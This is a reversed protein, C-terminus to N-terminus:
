RMRRSAHLAVRESLGVFEEYPLDNKADNTRWACLPSICLAKLAKQLRAPPKAAEWADFVIEPARLLADEAASPARNAFKSAAQM